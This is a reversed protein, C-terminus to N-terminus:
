LDGEGHRGSGSEASGVLYLNGRTFRDPGSQVQLARGISASLIGLACIGALSEPVRETACIARAMDAAAAPLCDLPFPKAHPEHEQHGTGNSHAGGEHTQEGPQTDVKSQAGPKYIRPTSM